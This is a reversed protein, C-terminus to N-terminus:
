GFVKMGVNKGRHVDKGSRSMLIRDVKADITKISGTKAKGRNVVKADPSSDSVSLKLRSTRGIREFLQKPQWPGAAFSTFAPSWSSENSDAVANSPFPSPRWASTGPSRLALSSHFRM